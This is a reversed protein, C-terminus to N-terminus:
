PTPCCSLMVMSGSARPTLVAWVLGPSRRGSSPVQSVCGPNSQRRVVADIRPRLMEPPGVDQEGGRSRHEACQHRLRTQARDMVPRRLPGLSVQEDGDEGIPEDLDDPPAHLRLADVVLSGAQVRGEGALAPQGGGEATGVPTGQLHASGGPGFRRLQRDPCEATIGNRSIHV